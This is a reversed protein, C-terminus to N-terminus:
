CSLGHEAFESINGRVYADTARYPAFSFVVASVFAPKTSSWRAPFDGHTFSAYYETVRQIAFDDQGYYFGNHFLPLVLPIQLLVVAGIVLLSTKKM